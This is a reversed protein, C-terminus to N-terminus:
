NKEKKEEVSPKANKNWQVKKPTQSYDVTLPIEKQNGKLAELTDFFPKDHNVLDICGRSGPTSGGHITIGKRGTEQAVKPDLKVDIHGKGWSNKGGPFEGKGLYGKIKQWKSANEWYNTSPINVSHKGEPIPGNNKEYQRKKSYDFIDETGDLPRGSVAPFHHEITRNGQKQILTLETGDFRMALSGENSAQNKEKTSPNSLTSMLHPGAHLGQYLDYAQVPTRKGDKIQVVDDQPNYYKKPM